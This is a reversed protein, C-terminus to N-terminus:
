NREYFTKETYHCITEPFTILQNKMIIRNFCPLQLAIKTIAVNLQLNPGQASVGPCWKTKFPARQRRMQKLLAKELRISTPSLSIHKIDTLIDSKETPLVTEEM